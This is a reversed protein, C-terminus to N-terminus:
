SSRIRKMNKQLMELKTPESLLHEDVGIEHAECAFVQAVSHKQADGSFLVFNDGAYDIDQDGLTSNFHPNKRMSRTKPDYYASDRDLNLLYKATDERTRGVYTGEDEKDVKEREVNGDVTFNLKEARLHRKAEEIRQYEEIIAKHESPDYGSRRDRKGDYDMAVERHIFEDPAIKAGSYKAAVKRPREMCDKKKQTMAGCNECAGKRYKVAVSNTDVGRRYWEDLKSFIKEKELQPRQHKLTPGKAGFYGPASSIYQSIHPSIDKGEEDVAAPATGAKRAEELKKAKRWDERSKKDEEFQRKNRLIKSVPVNNSTAM